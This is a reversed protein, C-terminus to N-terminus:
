SSAPLTISIAHSFQQNPALTTLDPKDAFEGSADVFDSTGLWPEICVFPAGPKSWIGLHPAKGTDVTLLTSNNRQLSLRTSNIDRFVLADNSFIEDTLIIRNDSTQIPTTNTELLGDTTLPFTAFTEPQDFVIAYDNFQYADSIELAFAPHSGITFLLDTNDHNIVTYRVELSSENLTYHVQLEFNWPYQLRSSNSAQLSMLLETDSHDVCNFTARRAIGHRPMEYQQGLHTMKGDKLAGVIPFLIPARGSWFKDDGQWILESGNHTLSSLEAGIPNVITKLSKNKLTFM